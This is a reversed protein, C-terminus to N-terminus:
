GAFLSRGAACSEALKLHRVRTQSRAPCCVSEARRISIHWTASSRLSQDDRDLPASLYVQKGQRRRPNREKTLLPKPQWSLPPGGGLNDRQTRKRSRPLGKPLICLFLVKRHKGIITDTRDYYESCSFSMYLPFSRLFGVTKTGSRAAITEDVFHRPSRYPSPQSSRCIVFSQIVRTNRFAPKGHARHSSLRWSPKCVKQLVSRCTRVSADQM